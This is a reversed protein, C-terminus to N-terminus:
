EGAAAPQKPRGGAPVLGRGDWSTGDALTVQQFEGGTRGDKLPNYKVTIKDGPKLTDRVWGNRALANVGTGFEFAWVEAAGNANTANVWLYAHPNTWEFTRVTGNMTSSKTRDFMAYSHHAAAVSTGFPVSVIAVILFYLFIWEDYPPILGLVWDLLVRVLALGLAGVVVGLAIESLRSM